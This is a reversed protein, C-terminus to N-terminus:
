TLLLWLAIAVLAATALFSLTRHIQILAFLTLLLSTVTTETARDFTEPKKEQRAVFATAGLVFALVLLLLAVTKLM